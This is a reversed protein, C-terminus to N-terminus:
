LIQMIQKLAPVAELIASIYIADQDEGRALERELARMARNLEDEVTAPYSVGSFCAIYERVAPEDIKGDKDVFVMAGKYM